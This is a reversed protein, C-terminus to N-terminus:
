VRTFETDYGLRGAYDFSFTAGSRTQVTREIGWTQHGRGAADALELFNEGGQPASDVVQQRNNADHMRDGDSWVIFASQGHEEEQVVRWGELEQQPLLTFTPSRNPASEWDTRFRERVAGVPEVLALAPADAM